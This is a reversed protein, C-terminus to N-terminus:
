RIAGADHSVLQHLGAVCEVGRVVLTGASSTARVFTAASEGKVMRVEIVVQMVLVSSQILRGPCSSGSVKGTKRQESGDADREEAAAAAAASSSSSSSSLLGSSNLSNNGSERSVSKDTISKLLHGLEFDSIPSRSMDRASHATGLRYSEVLRESKWLGKRFLVGEMDGRIIIIFPFSPGICVAMKVPAKGDATDITQDASVVTKDLIPVAYAGDIVV